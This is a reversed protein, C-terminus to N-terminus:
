RSLSPRLRRVPLDGRLVLLLREAVMEANLNNALELQRRAELLADLRSASQAVGRRRAAEVLVERQDPHAVPAAGDASLILQDRAWVAWADLVARFTDRDAALSKAEESLRALGAPDEPGFSADLRAVRELRAAWAAPEIGLVRGPSGEAAAALRRVEAPTLGPGTRSLVQETEEIRLPHLRIRQCRSLITPLLRQPAETTLLLVTESPPEELTKLLAQQAPLVLRDAGMVRGVKVRGPAARLQLLREFWRVTGEDTSSDGLLLNGKENPRLSPSAPHVGADFRQCAGCRGCAGGPEPAECTLWAAFAEATTRKGVGAPGEFLIAHPLRGASRSEMLRALVARHGVVQDIREPM